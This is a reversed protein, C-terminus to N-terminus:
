SSVEMFLLILGLILLTAQIKITSDMRRVSEQIEGLANLRDVTLDVLIEGPDKKSLNEIYVEIDGGLPCKRGLFLGVIGIACGLILFFGACIYLASLYGFHLSEVFLLSTFALLIGSKDNLSNLINQSGAIQEHLEDVLEDFVREKTAITSHPAFGTTYNVSEVDGTDENPSEAQPDSAQM